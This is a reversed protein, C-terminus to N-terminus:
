GGVRFRRSLHETSVLGPRSGRPDMRPVGRGVDDLSEQEPEEIRERHRERARLQHMVKEVTKMVAVQREAGDLELTEIRKELQKLRHETGSAEPESKSREAKGWSFM